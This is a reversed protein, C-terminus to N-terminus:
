KEKRLKLINYVEDLKFKSSELSIQHTNDINIDQKIRQKNIMNVEFCKQRYNEATKLTKANLKPKINFDSQSVINLKKNM